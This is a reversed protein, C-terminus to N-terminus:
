NAHVPRFDESFPADTMNESWLASMIDGAQNCTASRVIIGAAALGRAFEECSRFDSQILRRADRGFDAMNLSFVAFVNAIGAQYVLVARKSGDEQTLGAFGDVKNMDRGEERSFPKRGRETSSIRTRINPM